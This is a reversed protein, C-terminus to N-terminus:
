SGWDWWDAILCAAFALVCLIVLVLVPASM